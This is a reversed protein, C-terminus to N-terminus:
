LIIYHIIYNTIHFQTKAGYSEIRIIMLRGFPKFQNSYLSRSILLVQKSHVHLAPARNVFMTTLCTTLCTM